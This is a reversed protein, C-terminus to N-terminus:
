EKLKEYQGVPVGLLRMLRLEDRADTLANHLEVYYREGSALRLMQEAGYDRRLRGTRCYDGDEPLFRNFQRYAAVAMIDHWVEGNGTLEPLLARDFRANYAFIDRVGNAALLARIGDTAQKRLCIGTVPVGRPNLASSYIGGILFEPSLIYYAETRPCLTEGDAIVIGVSMLTNQYTTETDVVAILEPM